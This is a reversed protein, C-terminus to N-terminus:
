SRMVGATYNGCDAGNKGGISHSAADGAGPNKQASTAAYQLPIVPILLNGFQSDRTVFNGTAGATQARVLAAKKAVQLRGEQHHLRQVAVAADNHLVRPLASHSQQHQQQVLLRPANSHSSTSNSLSM